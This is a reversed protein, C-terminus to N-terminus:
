CFDSIRLVRVYIRLLAGIIMHRTAAVLFSGASSVISSGSM